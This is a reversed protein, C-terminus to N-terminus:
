YDVDATRATTGASKLMLIRPGTVRGAATPINANNTAVLVDNIYFQASTGAANVVCKLRVWDGAVVAVGSDSRTRASNNSTECQWNVGSVARDYIFYVGDVAVKATADHLGVAFAFEQAATSLTVIRVRAEFTFEGLGLIFGTLSKYLCARGNAAGATSFTLVGSANDTPVVTAVAQTGTANTATWVLGTTAQTEFDDFFFSFNKPDFNLDNMYALPRRTGAPTFYLYTGDYELAGTEAAALNTGSALKLPATNATATGAKLNLAATPSAVGIGVRDNAPDVVLTDSDISLDSSLTWSGGTPMAVMPLNAAPAAVNSANGVFIQNEPLASSTFIGKGELQAVGAADTTYVQDAGGDAFKAPTVNKDAIKATTVAQDVIEDTNVANDALKANTIADDQIQVVGANSIAIDGSIAQPAAANAANGVLLRGDALTLTNDAPNITKDTLAQSTNTTAISSVSVANTGDTINGKVYANRWGNTASGLDITNDADPLLSTNVAVASLNGLSTDAANAAAASMLAFPVALLPERPALATGDVVVELFVPAGDSIAESLSTFLAGGHDNVDDGLVVKYLGGAVSVVPCEPASGDHWDQYLLDGGVLESWVLFRMPLAPNDVVNGVSDLLRGQYVVGEPVALASL